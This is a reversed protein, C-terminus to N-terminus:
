IAVWPLARESSKQALQSSIQKTVQLEGAEKLLYTESYERDLDSWTTVIPEFCWDLVQQETLEEYPIFSDSRTLDCSYTASATYDGDSATVTLDVQTILDDQAVTVKNVSWKIEM